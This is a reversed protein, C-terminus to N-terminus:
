SNMEKSLDELVKKTEICELNYMNQMRAHHSCRTKGSEAFLQCDIEVCFELAKKMKRQAAQKANTRARRVEWQELTENKRLPM